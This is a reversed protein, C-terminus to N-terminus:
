KAGYSVQHPFLLRRQKTLACTDCFQEVHDIHPMGQVM